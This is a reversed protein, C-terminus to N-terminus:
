DTHNFIDETINENKFAKHFKQVASLYSKQTIKNMPEMALNIRKEVLNILALRQYHNM